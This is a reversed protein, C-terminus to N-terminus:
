LKPGRSGSQLDSRKSAAPSALFAALELRRGAVRGAYLSSGNYAKMVRNMDVWAPRRGRPPYYAAQMLERLHFAAMYTALTIHRELRVSKPPTVFRARAMSKIIAHRTPQYIQYPSASLDRDGLVNAYWTEQHAIAAMFTVPVDFRKAAAYMDFALDRAYSKVDGGFTMRRSKLFIHVRGTIYPTMRRVFEAPGMKELNKLPLVKGKFLAPPRWQARLRDVALEDAALAGLAEDPSFGLSRYERYLRAMFRVQLRDASKASGQSSMRPAGSRLTMEGYILPTQELLRRAVGALRRLAKMEVMSRNAYARRASALLVEPSLGAKQAIAAVKRRIRPPLEAQSRLPMLDLNLTARGVVGALRRGQAKTPLNFEPALSQVPSRPMVLTATIPPPQWDSRYTARSPPYPDVLVMGATIAGVLAWHGVTARGINALRRRAASLRELVRAVQESSLAGLVGPGGGSSASTAVLLVLSLQKLQQDLSGVQQQLDALEKKLEASESQHAQGLVALHTSLRASLAAWRETEARAAALEAALRDQDSGALEPEAPPPGEAELQLLMGQAQRYRQHRELSKRKLAQSLRRYRQLDAGLKEAAGATAEYQELLAAMEQQADRARSLSQELQNVRQHADDRQAEARRRRRELEAVERDLRRTKEVLPRQIQEKLPGAVLGHWHRVAGCVAELRQLEVGRRGLRRYNVSHPKLKAPTRALSGTRLRPMAEQLEAAQRRLEEAAQGLDVVRGVLAALDEALDAPGLGMVLRVLEAAQNRQLEAAQELSDAVALAGALQAEAEGLHRREARGARRWAETLRKAREIGRGLYDVLRDLEGQAAASRQQLGELGGHMTALEAVARRRQEGKAGNSLPGIVEPLREQLAKIERNVATAGRSLATGGSGRRALESDQRRVLFALREAREGQRRAEAQAQRCAELAALGLKLDVEEALHHALMRRALDLFRRYDAAVRELRHLAFRYGAWQARRQKLGRAARRLSAAHRPRDQRLKDALRHAQQLDAEARRRRELARAQDRQALAARNEARRLARWAARKRREADELDGRTLVTKDADIFRRLGRPQVGSFWRNIEDIERQRRRAESLAEEVLQHLRTAEAGASAVADMAAAEWRRARALQEAWARGATKIREKAAAAQSAARAQYRQLTRAAASLAELSLGVGEVQGAEPWLTQVWQDLGQGAVQHQGLPDAGRPWLEAGLGNAEDSIQEVLARLQTISTSTLTM